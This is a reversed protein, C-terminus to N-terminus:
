REKKMRSPQGTAELVNMWLSSDSSLQKRKSVATDIPLHTFKEHIHGILLNTKGAMAAHVANQALQICYIADNSNALTSRIMYSPDIYKIQCPIKHELGFKLIESKLLKGIDGLKRNGSADFGLSEKDFLWQGAGEAAIIVAHHRSQLRLFLNHLFGNKGHLDFDVEPVLVFNADNIALATESAIFGSNRGMLKVLGVGNYYGKAETHAASIANTATQVATQFGFSRSIYSIDNDITKPIGVVSLPYGKLMSFLAIDRAGRLTGDGGICFLLNIKNKEINNFIDKTEFIGRSSGLITGPILHIDEVSKNTLRVPEFEKEIFGAYGYRIGLVDNVGYRYYLALTLGRIVNNLGPCLGGCTVIAARTKSPDFFIKARPGALEISVPIDSEGGDPSKTQIELIPSDEHIINENHSVLTSDEVRTDYLVREFDSVFNHSFFNKLPSEYKCDGLDKINFM